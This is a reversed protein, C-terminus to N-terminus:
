AILQAAEDEAFLHGLCFDPRAQGGGNAVVQDSRGLAALIGSVGSFGRFDAVLVLFGVGGSWGNVVRIGARFAQGVTSSHGKWPWTLFLKQGGRKLARQHGGLSNDNRAFRPIQKKGAGARDQDVYLRVM